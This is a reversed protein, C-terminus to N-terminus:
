KAALESYFPRRFDRSSFINRNVSLRIGLRKHAFPRNHKNVLVDKLMM